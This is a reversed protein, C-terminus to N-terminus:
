KGITDGLAFFMYYFGTSLDKDFKDSTDSDNDNGALTRRFRCLILADNNLWEMYTIDNQDEEGMNPQYRYGSPNYTDKVIVSSGDIDSQCVFVDDDGKLNYLSITAYPMQPTFSAMQEDNSFGLAIWGRRNRIMEVEIIGAEQDVM